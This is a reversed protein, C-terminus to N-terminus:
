AAKININPKGARDAPDPGAILRAIDLLLAPEDATEVLGIAAHSWGAGFGGPVPKPESSAEVVDVVADVLLAYPQGDVEVVAARSATTSATGLGLATRSDIVTLSQSRLATLGAIFAPATPIPHISEIEIISQIEVARFAARRGGIITMVLMDQM